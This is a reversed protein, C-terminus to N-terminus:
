IVPRTLLAHQTGQVWRETNRAEGICCELIRRSDPVVSAHGTSQSYDSYTTELYMIKVKNRTSVTWLIEYAMKLNPRDHRTRYISIKRSCHSKSATHKNTHVAEETRPRREMIESELTVSKPFGSYRPPAYVGQKFTGESM